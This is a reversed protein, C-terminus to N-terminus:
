VSFENLEDEQVLRIKRAAAWDYAQQTFPATSILYGAASHSSTMMAYLARLDAVDVPLQGELILISAPQGDPSQVNLLGRGERQSDVAVQAGQGELQAIVREVLLGPFVPIKGTPASIGPQDTIPPAPVLPSPRRAASRLGPPIQRHLGPGFGEAPIQRPAQAPRSGGPTNGGAAGQSSRRAYVLVALGAFTVLTSGLLCAVQGEFAVRSFVFAVVGALMLLIALTRTVRPTKGGGTEKGSSPSVQDAM